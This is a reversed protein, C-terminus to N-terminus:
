REFQRALRDIQAQADALAQTVPKQGTLARHLETQLVRSFQPYWAVKARPYAYKQQELMTRFPEQQLEPLNSLSKRTIRLSEIDRLFGIQNEPAVYLELLGWALDKKQSGAMIAPGSGGGTTASVRKDTGPILGARVDDVVLSRQPDRAWVWGFDWNIVFAVDGKMFLSMVERDSLSTSAPDAVKYTHITDYMFQLAARAEPTDITWRGSADQYEGGFAYLLVTFDCVLGEAQSWGWAIGYRALGKEQIVRSMEVLEDWTRPPANFGAERLIRDNYYFYKYNYGGGLAYPRGNYTMMDMSSETFDAFYEPGAFNDLPEVVGSLAYNAVYITDIVAVDFGTNGGAAATVIVEHTLDYAQSVIILPVGYREEFQDAIYEFFPVHSEPSVVVLGDQQASALPAAIAMALLLITMCITRKM